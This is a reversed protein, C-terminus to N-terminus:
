HSSRPDHVREKRPILTIVQFGGASRVILSGGYAQARDRMGGFGMHEEVQDSGQGNDGVELRIVGPLGLLSINVQTAQAHRIVNTLAERLNGLLVNWVGPSLGELDGEEHYHTLIGSDLRFRDIIGQMEEQKLTPVEAQMQHVAERVQTIGTRLMGAAHSLMSKAKEPDRDLLEAAAEMQLTSATLSHGLLDHIQQAIQRREELRLNLAMQSDYNEKLIHYRLSNKREMQLRTNERTLEQTQREKKLLYGHLLGYLLYCVLLIEPHYPLLFYMLAVNIATFAPHVSLALVRAAFFFLLVTVILSIAQYTLLAYVFYGALIILDTLLLFLKM